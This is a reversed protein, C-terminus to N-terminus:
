RVGDVAKYLYGTDLAVGNGGHSGDIGKGKCIEEGIRSLNREVSDYLSHVFGSLIYFAVIAFCGFASKCFM